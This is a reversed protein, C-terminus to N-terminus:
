DITEEQINSEQDKPIITQFLISLQSTLSKIFPALNIELCEKIIEYYDARAEPKDEFLQKTISIDDYTCYKLCKYLISQFRSSTMLNLFLDKSCDLLGVISATGLSNIEIDSINLNIKKAEEFLVTQLELAEAFSAENIVLEANNVTTCTKM